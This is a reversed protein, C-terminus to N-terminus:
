EIDFPINFMKHIIREAMNLKNHRCNKFFVNLTHNTKSETRLFVIITMRADCLKLNFIRWEIRESHQKHVIHKTTNSRPEGLENLMWLSNSARQINYKFHKIRCTIKCFKVNVARTESADIRALWYQLHWILEIYFKFKTNNWWEFCWQTSLQVRSNTVWDDWYYHSHEFWQILVWRVKVVCDYLPIQRPNKQPYLDIQNEFCICTSKLLSGNKGNVFM